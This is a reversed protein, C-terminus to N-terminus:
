GRLKTVGRICSAPISVTEGFRTAGRSLAVTIFTRTRKIYFGVTECRVPGHEKDDPTQGWGSTVASDIWKVRVPDGVKLKM